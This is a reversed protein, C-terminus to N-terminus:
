RGKLRSRVEDWTVSAQESPNALRRDLEARHWDPVPVNSPSASLHDWVEEVLELQQDAPLRFIEDLIGKPTMGYGARDVQCRCTATLCLSNANQQAARNVVGMSATGSQEFACDHILARAADAAVGGRFLKQALPRVNGQDGRPSEQTAGSWAKSGEDPSWACGFSAERAEVHIDCLLM